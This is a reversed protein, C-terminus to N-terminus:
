DKFLVQQLTGIQTWGTAGSLKWVADSYSNDDNDKGGIVVM